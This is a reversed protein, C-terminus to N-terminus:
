VHARGIQKQGKKLLRLRQHLPLVLGDHNSAHKRPRIRCAVRIRFGTAESAEVGRWKGRAPWLTDFFLARWSVSDSPAYLGHEAALAACMLRWVENDEMDRKRRRSTQGLRRIDTMSCSPLGQSLLADILSASGQWEPLGRLELPVYEDIPAVDEIPEREVEPPKNWEDAGISIVVPAPMPRTVRGARAAPLQVQVPQNERPPPAEVVRKQPPSRALRNGGPIFGRPLGGAADNVSPAVSQAPVNRPRPPPSRM